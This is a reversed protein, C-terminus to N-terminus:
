ASREKMSGLKSGLSRRVAMEIHYRPLVAATLAEDSVMNAIDADTWEKDGRLFDVSYIVEVLQQEFWEHVVETIIQKAAAVGRYQKEWREIFGTFVRFDENILLRNTEQVYHAARDAVGLDAESVWETKIDLRDRVEEGPRGGEDVVFLTYLDGPERGGGTGHRHRSRKERIEIDTRPTGMTMEDAIRLPGRRAPRYKKLRLFEEIERLRERISKSYDPSKHDRSAADILDMIETPFKDGRFREAWEGWPLPEGDVMLMTRATNTTIKHGNGQKPQLYLVVRSHALHVGFSQLLASGGRATKLEYLEDNYLAAIHGGPLNAGSSQGVAEVDKLIWWHAVVDGLDVHGSSEKHRELFEKSGKVTRLVNTDTSDSTYGERARVAVGDPFVFFRSNLYRAIWRSPTPTNPPAAMTDVDEDNGLLIVVTGHDKFQEPKLDDSIPAWHAFKGNPLKLQKLGYTGTDPNRWLHIMSGKGNTWSLYVVGAHNRTAAAIKAGVGYNGEVSQLRGSSSLKNIYRQMEQGTMGVGTDLIALKYVGQLDFTNHDFDWIIEGKKGPLSEIAEISNVTLERLFQLPACDTGLRDLLFGMNQVEMPATRDDGIDAADAISPSDVRDNM